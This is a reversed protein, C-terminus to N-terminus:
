LISEAVEVKLLSRVNEIQNAIMAVPSGAFLLGVAVGDPTMVLSGSDGGASMNTTVIQDHFRGVRGGGYNVDITANIATVRGVTFNTTRGTKKVLMGVSVNTRRRWGRVVGNWYVQRDLQDFAGEAVACDVLNRHLPLAVPPNLTIPVFRSLTAIKDAPNTGGDFPGPQLIPDGISAANVNALVHNNSLIYFRPPIGIGHAPPGASGGPLIDYVCTGITGATIQFHGVSWGGQAPRIRRALTQPTVPPTDGAIPIGVTLVDTPTGSISPPVIQDSGLASEELKQTVLVLVAPKGTPMGDTWKVGVGVGVVNQPPSDERLLEEVAGQHAKQLKAADAAELVQSGDGASAKKPQPSL